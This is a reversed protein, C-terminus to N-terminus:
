DFWCAKPDFHGAWCEVFRVELPLGFLSLITDRSNNEMIANIQTQAEEATLYTYRGQAPSILTRMGGKNIHTIVYRLVPPQQTTSM